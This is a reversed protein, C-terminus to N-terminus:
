IRSLDCFERVRERKERKEREIERKSQKKKKKKKKKERERERKEKREKREKQDNESAFLRCNKSFSFVSKRFCVCAPTRCKEEYECSSRRVTESQSNAARYRSGSELQESVQKISFKQM